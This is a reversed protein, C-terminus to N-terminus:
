AFCTTPIIQVNDNMGHLLLTKNVAPNQVISYPQLCSPHLFYPQPTRLPSNAATPPIHSVVERAPPYCPTTCYSTPMPASHSGPSFLPTCYIPKLNGPGTDLGSPCRPSYKCAIPPKNSECPSWEHRTTDSTLCAKPGSCSVTQGDTSFPCIQSPATVM